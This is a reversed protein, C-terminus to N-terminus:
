VVEVYKIEAVYLDRLGILLDPSPLRQLLVNSVDRPIPMAQAESIETLPLAERQHATQRQASLEILNPLNGSAVSSM